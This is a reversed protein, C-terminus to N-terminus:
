EFVLSASAYSVSSDQMTSCQSSQAYKLFKLSMRPATSQSQLKAIAQLLVGIPHRGCITNNYKNLYDTFSSPEMKEIIDMGQKDLWEISQHIRGRAPDRWTYRFRSGWHCFDSSIVVLNQPDALYPALIAGYKAEKEPTLSGVLIPIITFGTKYEEMVKAIYPLHMEISHEDEDTQVDMWEFQRTAELEAYVSFYVSMLMEIWSFLNGTDHVTAKSQKDITLDYLPTQYKDLSSLACGALRVHHSPGLVFIRKVVVPSVQRYAFAACAGCYSYGAHPAIIARAPGHTLDAKSLWLDLQRSLESGNETYWSGAHSANRCSM